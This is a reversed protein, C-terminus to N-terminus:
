GLLGFLGIGARQQLQGQSFNQLGSFATVQGLTTPAILGHEFYSVEAGINVVCRLRYHHKHEYSASPFENCRCESFTIKGDKEEAEDQEARELQYGDYKGGIFIYKM